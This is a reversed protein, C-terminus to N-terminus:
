NYTGSYILIIAERLQYDMGSKLLTRFVKETDPQTEDHYLHVLLVFHGLIHFPNQPAFLYIHLLSIDSPCQDLNKQVNSALSDHM